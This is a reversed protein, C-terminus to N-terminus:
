LLKEYAVWMASYGPKYVIEVRGCYSYGLKLLASRMIANDRHTDVRMSVAGQTKAKDELYTMMKKFVGHGRFDANVASRHIVGYLADDATLWRGETINPYAEEPELLLTATGAVEGNQAALYCCGKEIDPLFEREDPYGNVWQDVGNEALFKQAQGVIEMIAPMDEPTALRFEM